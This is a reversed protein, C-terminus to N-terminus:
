KKIVIASKASISYNPNASTIAVKHNGIKLKKVNLKATGKSNTKIKYTKKDIKVKLVVNKAAKKTAKNKVNVKFYKSKKHKATVKPAKVITKAKTIKVTTSIQILKEDIYYFKIKYTGVALSSAKFYAMGKSNTNVDAYKVKKGKTIKLDINKNKFPNKSESYVMKVWVTKGSQYTTTLKGVSASLLRIKKLSNDFYNLGSYSKGNISASKATGIAAESNKTFNCNDLVLITSYIAGAFSAKNANFTSNIVTTNYSHIAGGEYGRNKSFTSNQVLLKGWHNNIASKTNNVFNSNYVYIESNEVFITDKEVNYEGNASYDYCDACKLNNNIFNCTDIIIKCQDEENESHIVYGGNSTFNCNSVNLNSSSEIVPIYDPNKTFTSNTITADGYCIINSAQFKSNLVTLDSLSEIYNEKFKSKSILLNGTSYIAGGLDTYYKEFYEYNQVLIEAYNDEFECNIITAYNTSHLAGASRSIDDLLFSSIKDPNKITNNIFKSDILTLNGQSYIAATTKSQSNIFNINNICVNVNSINLINSKFKADLTAGNKSTITISKNIEIEKGESYYTGELEITDNESAKDIAIKIDTFTKGEDTHTQTSNDQASVAGISIILIILILSFCITRKRFM